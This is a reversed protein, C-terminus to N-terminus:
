EKEEKPSEKEVEPQKEEVPEIPAQLAEPIEIKNQKLIERAERM